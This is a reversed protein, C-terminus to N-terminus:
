PKKRVALPGLAKVVPGFVLSTGDSSVTGEGLKLWEGYPAYQEGVDLGQTFLEVVTGAPWANRNVLTLRAPPCFVTGAPAVGILLSLGIWNHDPYFNSNGPQTAARLLQNDATPYNLTDILITTGPELTLTLDGSTLSAGATLSVGEAPLPAVYLNVFGITGMGADIPVGISPFKLGDGYRFVPAKLTHAFTIALGGNAGSTAVPSALDLGVVAATIGPVSQTRGDVFSVSVEHFDVAGRTTKQNLPACAAAGGDPNGSAQPNDSTCAGAVLSLALVLAAPGRPAAYSSM